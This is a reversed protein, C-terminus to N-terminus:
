STFLSDSYVVLTSRTPHALRSSSRRAILSTNSDSAELSTRERSPTASLTLVLNLIICSNEAGGFGVSCLRPHGTSEATPMTRLM